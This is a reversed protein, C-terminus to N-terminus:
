FIDKIPKYTLRYFPFIGFKKIMKLHFKTPYGKHKLFGYQPYKKHYREMMRDRNVKAVISALTISIIKEDGKIISKQSFSIPLKFNGDILLFIKEKQSFDALLKKVVRKMALKTAELVNIKDITKPSVWSVAFKIKEKIIKEYIEERKQASLKKSDRLSPIKIKSNLIVGGAFLPGAIAGRGAEDLGIVFKYGKKWLKKEERLTPKM